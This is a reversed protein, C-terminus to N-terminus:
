NAPDRCKRARTNLGQRMSFPVADNRCNFSAGMMLVLGEDGDAPVETKWKQADYHQSLITTVQHREQGNLDNYAIAAVIMHGPGSWASAITTSLILLFTVLSKM